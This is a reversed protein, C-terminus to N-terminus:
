KNHSNLFSFGCKSCTTTGVPMNTACAPCERKKKNTVLFIVLLIFDIVMWIFLLFISAFGLGLATGTECASEGGCDTDRAVSGVGGFLMWAFLLNVAIIFWGFPRIKRM